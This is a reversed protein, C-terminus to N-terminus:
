KVQLLPRFRQPGFELGGRIAALPVVTRAIILMPQRREFPQNGLFPQGVAFRHTLALFRPRFGVATGRVTFGDFQTGAFVFVPYAEM